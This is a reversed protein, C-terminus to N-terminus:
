ARQYVAELPAGDARTALGRALLDELHALTSLAAAGKLRPQLGAYNREVIAAITSRL